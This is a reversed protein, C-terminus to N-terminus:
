FHLTQIIAHKMAEILAEFGVTAQKWQQQQMNEHSALACCVFPWKSNSGM